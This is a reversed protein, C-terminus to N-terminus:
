PAFRDATMVARLYDGFTIDVPPCYDIARACVQFFDEATDAFAEHFATVDPNTREAFFPRMGDLVAHTTEHVIIDHSLCTFVVQGPLNRGPDTQSARFYGFLIGKWERTPPSL